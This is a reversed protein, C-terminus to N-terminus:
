LLQVLASKERIGCRYPNQSLFLNTNWCLCSLLTVSRSDTKSINIIKQLCKLEILEEVNAHSQSLLTLIQCLCKTVQSDQDTSADNSPLMTVVEPLVQKAKSTFLDM